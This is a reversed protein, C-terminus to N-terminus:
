VQYVFNFNYSLLHSILNITLVIIIYYGNSLICPPPHFLLKQFSIGYHSQIPCLHIIFLIPEQLLNICVLTILHVYIIFHNRELCLWMLQFISLNIFLKSYTVYGRTRELSPLNTTSLLQEYQMGSWQSTAMKCAFKQM